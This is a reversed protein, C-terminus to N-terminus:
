RPRSNADPPPAPLARTISTRVPATSALKGNTVGTGAPLLVNM